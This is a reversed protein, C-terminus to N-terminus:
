KDSELVEMIQGTTLVRAPNQSLFGTETSYLNVRSDPRRNAATESRAAVLSVATLAAVAIFMLLVLTASAQWWRWFVAFPKQVQQKERWANLVKSQFFPTPAPADAFNEAKLLTSSIRASHFATRCNRCGRIHEGIEAADDESIRDFETRDLIKTIHRSNM